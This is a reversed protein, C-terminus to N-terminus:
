RRAEFRAHLVAEGRVDEPAVGAGGTDSAAFAAMRAHGMELPGSGGPPGALLGPDAIEVAEVEAWGAAQAIALARTRAEEVAHTLAAAEISTRTADTLTWEVHHLQVGERGAWRITADALATFDRFKAKLLAGAGYRPPLVEGRENYPRWSRTSLPGVSYWTVAADAGQRLDHLDSALAEVADAAARSTATRDDGELDVGIHVTGREPALSWAHTGVVTIQM